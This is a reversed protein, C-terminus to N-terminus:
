HMLLRLMKDTENNSFGPIVQEGDRTEILEKLVLMRWREDEM